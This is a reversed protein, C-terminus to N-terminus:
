INLDKVKFVNKRKPFNRHVVPSYNVRNPELAYFDVMTRRVTTPPILSGGDYNTIAMIEVEFNTDSYGKSYLM